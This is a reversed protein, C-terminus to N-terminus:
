NRERVDRARKTEGGQGDMMGRKGHRQEVKDQKCM